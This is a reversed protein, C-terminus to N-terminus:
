PTAARHMGPVPDLARPPWMEGLLGELAPRVGWEAALARYRDYARVAAQAQAEGPTRREARLMLNRATAEPSVFEVVDVHYGLAELAAARLSDTVIDALRHRQLGSKLVARGYRGCRAADGAKVITKAQDGVGPPLLAGCSQRRAWGCEPRWRRTPRRTAAHLSVV